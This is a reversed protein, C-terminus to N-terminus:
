SGGAATRREEARREASLRELDAGGSHDTFTMMEAIARHGAKEAILRHMEQGVARYSPHGQISTRLEIM